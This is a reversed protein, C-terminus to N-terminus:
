GPAKSMEFANLTMAVLTYYGIVGITEVLTQEGLLSLARAYLDDRVRNTTVLQLTLEQLLALRPEELMAPRRESVATAADASLGAAVAIPEHIQREGVCDFRAAVLLILLESELLSLSTRFRCFEGLKQALGAFVPSFMWALFPGDMNGRSALISDYIERQRSDLQEPQPLLLRCKMASNPM